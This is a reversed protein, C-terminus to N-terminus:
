AVKKVYVIGDIVEDRPTILAIKRAQPRRGKRSVFWEEVEELDWLFHRATIAYAAPFSPDRTLQYM